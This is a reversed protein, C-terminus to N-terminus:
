TVEFWAAMGQAARWPMASEIPWQGPSDAIFAIRLTRADMVLLSDRWYPEWGDDLGHLLRATHGHLRICQAQGTRNVLGLAVPTGRRVSFLPKSGAWGTFRVGNIRWGEGQLGTGELMLDLRKAKQLAIDVPLLPNTPLGMFRPLPNRREGESKLIMLVIDPLPRDASTESRLVISAESGAEPMDLMLDFRAGPGVPITSRFPAFPECPQGDIAIITPVPGNFGVLLIRELAVNVIRLRIRAGPRFTRVPATAPPAVKPPETGATAPVPQGNLTLLTTAAGSPTVQGDKDLLWEGLVLPLDADVQPPSAEDIIVLGHLGKAQHMATDAHNHSHLWVLGAEQSTLTIDAAAGAGLLGPQLGGVGSLVNPLRMGHWHVSIPNTLQNVMRLAFAEGQRMRIIPNTFPDFAGAEYHLLATQPSKEGNLQAQFTSARIERVAPSPHAQALCSSEPLLSLAAGGGNRLLERRSLM